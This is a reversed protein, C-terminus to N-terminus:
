PDDKGNTAADSSLSISFISGVGLQSEVAVEGGHAEVLYKVISLGLGCGGQSRSLRQDVQYFRDFVRRVANPPLGLGNDEVSIVVRDDVHKCSILVRKLDGTYKWANDLLNVVSTVLLDIDGRVPAPEYAEVILEATLGGTDTAFRDQVAEVAQAVVERADISQFEVDRKGDEMRSFTLFNEILRTLRANEHSILELYELTQGRTTPPYSKDDQNLLTDVLLRISSLPTKLEHSVTAVLDNKLRAVRMQHWWSRVVLTTLLLTATVVALATWAFLAARETSVLQEDVASIELQWGLMMPALSIVQSADASDLSKRFEIPQMFIGAPMRLDDLFSKLLKTLTTDYFLATADSSTSGNTPYRLSWVGTLPTSQLGVKPPKGDSKALYEAALSEGALMAFEFERPWRETLERMLFRRQPASLRQSDYRNLRDRLRNAIDNWEATTPDLLELQRLEANATQNRPLQDPYQV